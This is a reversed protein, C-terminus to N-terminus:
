YLKRAVVYCWIGKHMVRVDIGQNLDPSGMVNIYM